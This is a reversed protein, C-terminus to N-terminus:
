DNIENKDELDFLFVEKENFTFDDITTEYSINLSLVLTNYNTDYYIIPDIDHINYGMSELLSTKEAIVQKQFNVTSDDIDKLSVDSYTTSCPTCRNFISSINNEYINVVIANDTEYGNNTLVYRVITYDDDVKQIKQKLNSNTLDVGWYYEALTQINADTYEVLTDNLAVGVVQNNEDLYINEGSDLKQITDTTIETPESSYEGVNESDYDDVVSNMRSNLKISKRTSGSFRIQTIDYGDKGKGKYDTFGNAYEAATRITDGKALQNTFRPLWKKWDAVYVTDYWSLCAQAGAASAASPLSVADSSARATNCGAFVMLKVDELNQDELALKHYGSTPVQSQSTIHFYYESTDKKLYRFLLKGPAAHNNFLFIESEIRKRNTNPNYGNVYSWTPSINYYSNYGALAFDSASNKATDSLNCSSDYKFGYSYAEAAFVNLNGLLTLSALGLCATKQILNYNKM